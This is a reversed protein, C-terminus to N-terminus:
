CFIIIIVIIIIIINVRRNKSNTGCQSWPETGNQISMKLGRVPKSGAYDRFNLEVSLDRNLTCNWKSHIKKPRESTKFWSYDCIGCQSQPETYFEMKFPSSKKQGRVPKFWGYDCIGCQSRPETYFKMKFSSKEAEWQNQVLTEFTGYM